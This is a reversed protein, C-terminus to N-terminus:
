QCFKKRCCNKTELIIQKTADMITFEKENKNGIIENEETDHKTSLRAYDSM